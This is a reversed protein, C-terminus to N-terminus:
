FKIVSKIVKIPINQTGYFHPFVIGNPRNREPKLITGNKELAEVDLEFVLIDDSKKFFKEITNNVQSGYSAHMFGSKKDLASLKISNDKNDANFASKLAIKYLAEKKLPSKFKWFLFFVLVFLLSIFAVSSSLKSKM